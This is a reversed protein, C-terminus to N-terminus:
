IGALIVPWSWFVHIIISAWISGTWFFMLGSGLSSFFTLMLFIFLQPLNYHYVFVAIPLYILCFGISSIINALWSNKLIEALRNFIYGRFVTEESVSTIFSLLLAPFFIEKSFLLGFNFHGNKLYNLSIGVIVFLFSFIIGKLVSKKFNKLTYGLSEIGKKERLFVLYFTPGLWFLPKLIIEEINEPLRFILRYLGWAVFIFTFLKGIPELKKPM